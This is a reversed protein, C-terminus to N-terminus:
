QKRTATTLIWGEEDKGYLEKVTDTLTHIKTIVKMFSDSDIIKCDKTVCANYEANLQVAEHYCEQKTM